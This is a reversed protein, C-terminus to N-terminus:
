SLGLLPLCRAKELREVTGAGLQRRRMNRKIGLCSHGHSRATSRAMVELLFMSAYIVCVQSCVRRLLLAGDVKEEAKLQWKERGDRRQTNRRNGEQHYNQVSLKWEEETMWERGREEEAKNRMMRAWTLTYPAPM